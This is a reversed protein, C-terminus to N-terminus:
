SLDTPRFCSVGVRCPFLVGGRATVVLNFELGRGIGTVLIQGISELYTGETDYLLAVLWRFLLNVGQRMVVLHRNMEGNGYVGFKLRDQCEIQITYDVVICIASQGCTRVADM